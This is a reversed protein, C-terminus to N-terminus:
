EFQTRARMVWQALWSWLGEAGSSGGATADHEPPVRDRGPRPEPLDIPVLDGAANPAQTQVGGRSEGPQVIPNRRRELSSEDANAVGANAALALALVFALRMQSQTALQLRRM